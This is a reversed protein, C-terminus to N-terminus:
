LGPAEPCRDLLRALRPERARFLLDDVLRALRRNYERQFLNVRALRPPAYIVRGPAQDAELVFLTDPPVRADRIVRVPALGRPRDSGSM